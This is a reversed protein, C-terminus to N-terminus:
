NIEKLKIQTLKRKTDLTFDGKMIWEYFSPENKLVEKVPKGKHKGFNFVEIGNKYVMRGALDIMKSPSLKSLVEVDNNITAIKNGMTDVADKGEYRKVQALLVEYTAKTDAMANHADILEKQCYFQYAATLNRKEMTHFIKQADVIKRNDVNFDVHTRLFEEMLIPIDFGTINFGALDCGELWTALSRAIQKFTPANKVDKDYIGHILSVEEPIPITPNIKRHKKKMSGDEFIKIMAIDVIRDQSIHTGTTELDFVVLPKKLHLRFM